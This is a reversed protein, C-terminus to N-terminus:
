LKLQKDFSKINDSLCFKGLKVISERSYRFVIASSETDVDEFIVKSKDFLYIHPHNYGECVINVQSNNSIYIVPSKTQPIIINLNDCWMVHIVDKDLMIDNDYNYGAYLGYTYGNVNDADRITYGNIYYGFTSIIYDKTLGRGEYCYSAFFPISQQMLSLKVLKEKDNMSARWMNKWKDCLNNLLANKQFFLMENEM